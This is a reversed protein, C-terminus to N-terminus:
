RSIEDMKLLKKFSFINELLGIIMGFSYSLHMILISFTVYHAKIKEDKSSIVFALALVSLLYSVVFISTALLIEFIMMGLLFGFCVSLFFLM